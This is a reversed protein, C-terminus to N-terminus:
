DRGNQRWTPQSLELSSTAERIPAFVTIGPPLEGWIPLHPNMAIIQGFAKADGYAREAILDWRDKYNTTLVIFMM